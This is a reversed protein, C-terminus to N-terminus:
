SSPPPTEVCDPYDICVAFEDNLRGIGIGYRIQRNVMADVDHVVTQEGLAILMSCLMGNTQVM